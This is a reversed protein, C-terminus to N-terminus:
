RTYSYDLLDAREQQRFERMRREVMTEARPTKQERLTRLFYRLEDAAHDEGSSDLDSPNKEDHQLSPITEIMKVCTDFVRLLPETSKEWRLYQHVANWGVVREKAAPILGIVGHREYIEVATESYGAKAFAATDIVTYKYDEQVGNEDESMKCINDAHQDYDLGKRYYEKYVWVRGNSDLTYWHCSTTGERGSPDISRFRPWTFPIGQPFLVAGNVVHREYRWEKFYQGEFLEWEGERWAKGLDGELGELYEIYGKNLYPNSKYTSGVFKTEKETKARSPLIYRERVFAHGKGGPNFSTYMRPRWNPKSTRLSGRLKMYKDATLQNLEEVIIIDYEIGIYKDIDSEDKFGGLHIRSGNPFRLSQKTKRFRTHGRVVKGVLDDFSEQASVGTQRLFLCKLGPVRQCDDLAVQSLVAHSKGPGRAGGLGIDVPGSPEDAQRAAAHFQWQWPLPIYASNILRDAQDRPVGAAKATMVCRAIKDITEM